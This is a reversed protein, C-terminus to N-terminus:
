PSRDFIEPDGVATARERTPAKGRKITRVIGGSMLGVLVVVVAGTSVTEWGARIRLELDDATAIVAGSESQLEVSVLVDGSAIATVPVYVLVTAGEAITLMPQEEVLLRSDNPTLVVKVNAPSPLSNHINIPISGTDSILTLAASSIQMSGTALVSNNLSQAVMESRRASIEESSPGEALNATNLYAHTYYDRWALSLPLMLVPGAQSLLTDPDATASIYSELTHRADVLKRVDDPPLEGEHVQWTPLPIRDDPPVPQNILTTLPEVSIWSIQNLTNFAFTTATLDPDWDRPLAVLLNPPTELNQEIIITLEALFHQLEAIASSDALPKANTAGYFSLALRDDNVLVALNHGENRLTTLGSITGWRARLGAPSLFLNFSNAALNTTALDPALWDAPWAIPEHWESPTVWSTPLSSSIITDFTEPNIEAHALAALDPDFPPLPHVRLGGAVGTELRTVWDTSTELGPYSALAVLAPDVALTVAGPNGTTAGAVEAAEVLNSLRQNDALLVPLDNTFDIQSPSILAGTVPAIFSLGLHTQAAALTSAGPDWIFVSDYESIVTEDEAVLSISMPRVGRATTLTPFDNVLVRLTVEQSAGPPLEEITQSYVTVPNETVGTTFWDALNSRTNLIQPAIKLQVTANTLPIPEPNTIQVVIAVDVGPQAILPSIALFEIPSNSTVVDTDLPPQYEKDTPIGSDLQYNLETVGRSAAPMTRAEALSAALQAGTIPDAVADPLPPSFLFAAGFLVIALLSCLILAASTLWDPFRKARVYNKAPSGTLRPRLYPTNARM